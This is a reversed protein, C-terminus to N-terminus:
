MISMTKLLIYPEVLNALRQIQFLEHHVEPRSMKIVPPSERMDDELAWQMGMRSHVGVLKNGSPTSNFVIINRTHPTRVALNQVRTSGTVRWIGMLMKQKTAKHHLPNVDRRLWHTGKEKISTAARLYPSNGRGGCNEKEEKRERKRSKGLCMTRLTAQNRRQTWVRLTSCAVQFSSLESTTVKTINLIIHLIFLM